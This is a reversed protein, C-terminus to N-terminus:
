PQWWPAWLSTEPHILQWSLWRAALGRCHASALPLRFRHTNLARSYEASTWASVKEAGYFLYLTAAVFVSVGIYADRLAQRTMEGLTGPAIATILLFLAFLLRNTQFPGLREPMGFIASRTSAPLSSTQRLVETPMEIRAKM